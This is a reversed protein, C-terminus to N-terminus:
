EGRDGKELEKIEISEIGFEARLESANSFALIVNYICYVISLFSGIIISIGTLWFPLDTVQSVVYRTDQLWLYGYIIIVINFLIIISYNILAIFKLATAPLRQLFISVNMHERRKIAIATGLTSSYIFFMVLLEDMSYVSFQFLYRFAASMFVFTLILVSLITLLKEIYLSVISEIKKFINM